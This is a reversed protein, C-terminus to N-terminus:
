TGYLFKQLAESMEPSKKYCNTIAALDSQKLEFRVQAGADQVEKPRKIIPPDFQIWTPVQFGGLYQKFRFVSADSHCGDPDPRYPKAQSTTKLMLLRGDIGCGVVVLLKDAAGGDAFSFDRWFIVCGRKM